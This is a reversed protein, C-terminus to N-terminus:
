ECKSLNTTTDGVVCQRDILHSVCKCRFPSSGGGYEAVWKGGESNSTLFEPMSGKTSQAYVIGMGFVVVALSVLFFVFRKNM